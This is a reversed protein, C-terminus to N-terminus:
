FLNNRLFLKADFSVDYRGTKGCTFVDNAFQNTDDRFTIDNGSDLVDGSERTFAPGNYALRNGNYSTYYWDSGGTRYNSIRAYESPTGLWFQKPIISRM